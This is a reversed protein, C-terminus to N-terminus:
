RGGEGLPTFGTLSEFYWEWLMWGGFIWAAGGLALFPGFPLQRGFGIRSPIAWIIALICAAFLTFAVGHWGIFAGILGLLPRDGDGMAERPIAVRTAKGELSKM